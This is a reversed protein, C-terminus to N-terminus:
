VYIKLLQKLTYINSMKTEYECVAFFVTIEGFKRTHFNPSTVTNKATVDLLGTSLTKAVWIIM